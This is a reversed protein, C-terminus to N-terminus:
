FNYDSGSRYPNSNKREVIDPTWLTPMGVSNVTLDIRPSMIKYWRYIIQILWRSNDWSGTRCLPHTFSANYTFFTQVTHQQVDPPSQTLLHIVGSIEKEPNEM